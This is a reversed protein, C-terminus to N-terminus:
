HRPLDALAPEIETRRGADADERGPRPPAALAKRLYREAEAIEGRARMLDGYFYNPDIGDPNIQLAQKLYAQAKDKSGFSLPWGPVNAYLSGLSTYISGDLAKPNIQEATLLLERSRKVKDLAGLGGAVKAYSSLIIAQWIMPEARGIHRTSIQAAQQTLAAFRAEQDKAPTQYYAAAWGHQLLAIDDDLADARVTTSVALGLGLLLFSFLRLM